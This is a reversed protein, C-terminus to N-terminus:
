RDGGQQLDLFATELAFQVGPLSPLRQKPDMEGKSVLKCVHDLQIEIEMPDEVRLGPIFSVEGLGRVGDQDTLVLFWCAKKHFVGRSTGSPRKFHLPHSIYTAAIM